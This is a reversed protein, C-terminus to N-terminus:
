NECSEGFAPPLFSSERTAPGEVDSCWVRPPPRLAARPADQQSLHKRRREWETRCAKDSLVLLFQKIHIHRVAFYPSNRASCWWWVVELILIKYDLSFCVFLRGKGSELCGEKVEESPATPSLTTHLM